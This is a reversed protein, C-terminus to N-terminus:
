LFVTKLLYNLSFQLDITKQLEWRESGSKIESNISYLGISISVKIECSGVSFPISAIDGLLRRAAVLAQDKNIELIIVAFEEGGTRFVQYLDRYINRCRSALEVLVVNGAPHGYNDNVDKFHDLDFIIHFLNLGYRGSRDFEAQLVNRYQRRNNLGTLEDTLSLKKLRLSDERRQTMDLISILLHNGLRIITVDVRFLERTRSNLVIEDPGPQRNERDSTM